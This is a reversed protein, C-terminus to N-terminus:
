DFSSPQCPVYKECIREFDSSVPECQITLLDDPFGRARGEGHANMQPCNEDPRFPLTRRPPM